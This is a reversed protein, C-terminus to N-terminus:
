AILLNCGRVDSNDMRGLVEFGKETVRGLDETEIFSCSHANALDIVNIAGVKGDHVKEFPDNIDRLVVKMGPPCQFYGKTLSYAQSMMETMGYESYITNVNFKECLFSHLEERTIEKRKGKMGGTEIILCHSLDVEFNEALELLAFSVGVLITKKSSNKLFFIKNLLEEVNRLYFGSHGTEDQRIFHDMMAILSSGTRELYSPLLALFHYDKISGFFTEFCGVSHGLYFDLDFVAHRSTSAGTTGSSAFEVKSEWIGSKVDHAKFFSIPLFPIDVISKVRGPHKHLNDAYTRYLLNNKYQFNFVSLAIEKFSNENVEKIQPLINKLEKM